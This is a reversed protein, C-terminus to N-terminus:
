KEYSKNIRVDKERQTLREGGIRKILLHVWMWRRPSFQCMTDSKKEKKKRRRQRESTEAYVNANSLSYLRIFLDRM